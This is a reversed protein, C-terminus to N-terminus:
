SRAGRVQCFFFFVRISALTQVGCQETFNHLLLLRDMELPAVHVHSFKGNSLLLQQVRWTAALAQPIRIDGSQMFPTSM